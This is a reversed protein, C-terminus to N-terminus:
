NLEFWQKVIETKDQTEMKHRFENTKNNYIYNKSWSLHNKQVQKIGDLIFNLEDNTMTPHLSLRIWGPKQSLDGFNIRETIRNSQDHSVDLLFHGYTGACACGGRLQVGFKDNLLKVALNFHLNEIYFSIIGLRNHINNALIHLEEIKELGAFAINVLEKERKEINTIGMQNKLEICLATRITQLFPPTGGDERTEIDDVYKFEGWPNTWDVTGGGPNDPVSCNYISSNFVLVGSSGPGGLFKHPSFFIADLAELQNVPHMDIKVYPASAAFDVFCLGGNEHMIRAMQHYPTTIGTVNSCATFSGIKMKRNRYKALETRLQEPDVLLEKDPQLQVVDAITELWSTHNSHHEMHTIFVVPRDETPLRDLKDVKHMARFGLIRQFKNIVTTMGSGANIIVDDPGANVHEKIKKQALHYAKTMLTGTESTETHTNGVFPGFLNTIKDEIPGYLRGSAIWDAYIIRKEGYPSKFTQNLGIIGDRFKKFYEEM